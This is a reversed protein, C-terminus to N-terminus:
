SGCEARDYDLFDTTLVVDKNILKINDRVKALKTNGDYFLKDGYLMLPSKKKMSEGKLMKLYEWM